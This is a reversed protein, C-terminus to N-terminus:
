GLQFETGRYHFIQLEKLNIHPQLDELVSNESTDDHTNVVRDSWEFVLKNLYKKQNLKAEGVNVANELESIHLKGSLYAM